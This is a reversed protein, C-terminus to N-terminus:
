LHARLLPRARRRSAEGGEQRRCTTSCDPLFASPQSMMASYERRCRRLKQLIQWRTGNDPFGCGYVTVAHATEYSRRMRTTACCLRLSTTDRAVASLSASDDEITAKQACAARIIMLSVRLM